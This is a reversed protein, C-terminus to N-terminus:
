SPGPAYVTEDVVSRSRWTLQIKVVMFLFTKCSVLFSVGKEDEAFPYLETEDLLEDKM